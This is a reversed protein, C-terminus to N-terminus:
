NSILINFNNLINFSLDFLARRLKNNVVLMWTMSALILVTALNNFSIDFTTIGNIM